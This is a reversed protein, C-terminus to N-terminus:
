LDISGTPDVRETRGVGGFNEVHGWYVGYAVPAITGDHIPFVTSPAVERVFGLTESIKAWPAALPLGLVDVGPPVTEYSDGPHFFTPTGAGRVLVGVNDVRPLDPWIVAHLEGVGSVTLAGITFDRGAANPQWGGGLQEATQPDAILQADPNAAVLPGIRVPDVHDPHQHTVVIADLGTLTFTEAVSFAGPDILVSTGDHEVVM